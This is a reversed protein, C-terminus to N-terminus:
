TSWLIWFSPLIGMYGLAMNFPICTRRSKWMWRRGVELSSSNESDGNGGAGGNEMGATSSNRSGSEQGGSGTGGSYSTGNGGKKAFSSKSEWKVGGTGGGGTQRLEGNQGDNYADKGTIENGGNAGIAPVYEYTNDANKYLYVNQGEAYAGRATMSITGKNILTGTCYILMGKPGGYGDKNAYATVTVGENITLDGNIKVVVMNKAMDSTSTAVDKESGFAVSDDWTQSENFEYAHVGYTEDQVTVKYIGGTFDDKEVLQLLSEAKISTETANTDVNYEKSLIVEQNLSNISKAYITVTNKDENVLENKVVDYDFIWLPETYEEWQGNEGIKYYYKYTKDMNQLYELDIIKYGEGIKKEKYKIANKYLFDDNITINSLVEEGQTTYMKFEYSNDKTISYEIAVTHKGNCNLINENNPYEIRDIGNIDDQFIVLIKGQGNSYQYVKYSIDKETQANLKNKDIGLVKEFIGNNFITIIFISIAILLVIISIFLKIKKM